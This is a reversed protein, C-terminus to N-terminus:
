TTVCAPTTAFCCFWRSLFNKEVVPPPKSAKQWDAHSISERGSQEKMDYIRVNFNHTDRLAIHFANPEGKNTGQYFYMQNYDLKIKLRDELNKLFLQVDFHISSPDVQKDHAYNRIASELAFDFHGGDIILTTLSQAAMKDPFSKEQVSSLM